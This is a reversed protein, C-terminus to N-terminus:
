EGSADDRPTPLSRLSKPDVRAVNTLEWARRVIVQWEGESLGDAWEDFAARSSFVPEVLSAHVLDDEVTDVNVGALRDANRTDDDVGEIRPPHQSKLKRWAPRSISQLTVKIGEAEASAKLAEYEDRLRMYDSQEGVRRATREAEREAAQAQGYLDNLRDAYDDTLLLITSKRM